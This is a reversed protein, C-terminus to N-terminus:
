ARDKYDGREMTLLTQLTNDKMYHTCFSASYLITKGSNM